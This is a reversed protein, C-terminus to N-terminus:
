IYVNLLLNRQYSFGLQPLHFHRYWQERLLDHLLAHLPEYAGLAIALDGDLNTM